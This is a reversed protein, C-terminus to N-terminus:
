YSGVVKIREIIEKFDGFSVSDPISHDTSFIYGGDEKLSPITANIESLIKEKNGWSVADIGGHLTLKRGYDNKIKVADMGAKVEIPNLADLGIEVLESVFPRIDGCSHLHAKAGKAHVWDIARKHVPKLLERYMNLSFFQNHKYGMDDWWWFADFKYGAEWMMDYLKLQVDLQHNFMEVCWEPDEVLAMLIKETGVMWSHTVDFGFWGQFVVWGNDKRWKPYVTKLTDWPIRNADPVMREKAKQWSERDKMTFDVFEPTSTAHKWSKLTAGWNTTYLKYENTEELTKEPYGPSNDAKFTYVKDLDLVDRYDRGKVLGENNWRAITTEWPSDWIPIRDAEKHNYVRTMREHTNM